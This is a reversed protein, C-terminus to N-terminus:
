QVEVQIETVNNKQNEMDWRHYVERSNGTPIQGNKGLDGFLKEYVLGVESYAGKYMHSVCKIAPLEDFRIFDTEEGKKDVPICMELTFQTDMKGDCAIFNWIHPVQVDYGQRAVEKMLKEPQDLKQAMIEELTTTFSHKAVLTTEIKKTEM